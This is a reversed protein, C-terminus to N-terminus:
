AVGEKDRLWIQFAAELTASRLALQAEANTMEIGFQKEVWAKEIPDLEPLEDQNAARTRSLGCALDFYDNMDCAESFNTDAM